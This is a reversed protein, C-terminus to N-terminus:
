DREPTIFGENKLFDVVERAVLEPEGEIFDNSKKPAVGGSLLLQFREEPSLKSDPVFTKKTRPRPPTAEVVQLSAVPQDEKEPSEAELRQLPKTLAAKRSFVSVYRPEHVTREIGLVTPLHCEIEERWGRELQRCVTVKQESNVELRVVKTAQPCGLFNALFPAMYGGGEDQSRDGCLILDYGLGSIVKGILACTSFADLTDASPCLIHIARDVGRALCQYLISEVEEDGLSIVTVEGGLLEKLHIAEELAAIDKPNAVKAPTPEKQVIRGDEAKILARTDLTQKVCVITRM